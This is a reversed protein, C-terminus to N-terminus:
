LTAIISIRYLRNLFMASWKCNFVLKCSMIVYMKHLLNNLAESVVFLGKEESCDLQNDSVVQTILNLIPQPDSSVTNEIGTINQISNLLGKFIPIPKGLKLIFCVPLATSNTANLTGYRPMRLIFVFM